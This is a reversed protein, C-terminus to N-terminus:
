HMSCMRWKFSSMKSTTRSPMRGQRKLRWTQYTLQSLKKASAPSMYRSDVMLLSVILLGFAPLFEQPMAHRWDTREKIWFRGLRRDVQHRSWSVFATSFYKSNIPHPATSRGRRLHCDKWSDCVRM